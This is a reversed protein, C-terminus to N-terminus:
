GIEILDTPPSIKRASIRLWLSLVAVRWIFLAEIWGLDDPVTEIKNRINNVLETNVYRGIDNHEPDSLELLKDPDKLLGRMFNGSFDFKDTRSLVSAPVDGEMAKRLIYRSLGGRLKWESPLSLSHEILDQNYFPMRTEVGVAESCIAHAELVSPMSALSLAELQLQRETHHRRSVVSKVEYRASDIVGKMRDSLFRWDIFKLKTSTSKKAGFLRYRISRLARYAPFHSLYPKFLQIQSKPYFKALSGCENWLSLWKQSMALENLRGFGNSVVEDGGEGCLVVEFGRAKAIQRLRVSVSHGPSIYPGDLVDLWYDLNDLPDHEDSPVSIKDVQLFESMESLHKSDNWETTREYTMSVCPLDEGRVGKSALAGAISSSDLGGSLMLITSGKVFCDEVSRDFLERFNKEESVNQIDSRADAFSWYQHVNSGYQSFNLTHGPPLRFLGKFFTQEKELTAGAIFDALMLDNCQLNAHVMSRVLRSSSGIVLQEDSSFYYLPSLGLPDRAAFLSESNRDLLCFAFSGRLHAPMEERWELWAAKLIEDDNSSDELKLQSILDRRNDLRFAFSKILIVVEEPLAQSCEGLSLPFKVSCITKDVNALIM